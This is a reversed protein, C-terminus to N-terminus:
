RPSINVDKIYLPLRTAKISSATSTASATNIGKMENSAIISMALAHWRQRIVTKGWGGICLSISWKAWAMWRGLRSMQNKSNNNTETMCCEMSNWKWKQDMGDSQTLLLLFFFFVFWLFILHQCHVGRSLLKLNQRTIGAMEATESQFCESIWGLFEIM